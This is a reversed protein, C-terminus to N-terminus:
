AYVLDYRLRLRVRHGLFPYTEVSWPGSKGSLSSLFSSICSNKDSGKGIGNM